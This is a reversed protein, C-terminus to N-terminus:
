EEETVQDEFEERYSTTGYKYLIDRDEPHNKWHELAKKNGLPMSLPSRNIKNRIEEEKKTPPGGHLSGIISKSYPEGNIFEIEPDNRYREMLEEETMEDVIDTDSSVDITASDQITSDGTRQQKRQKKREKEERKRDFITPSNRVSEKEARYREAAANYEDRRQQAERESIENYAKEFEKDRAKANTKEEEDTRGKPVRQWAVSAAETSKRSVDEKLGVFWPLYEAMDKITKMTAGVAAIAGNIIAVKSVLKSLSSATSNEVDEGNAEMKALKIDLARKAGLGLAAISASSKTVHKVLDGLADLGMQTVEKKSKDNRMHIIKECQDNFQRIKSPDALNKEKSIGEFVSVILTATGVFWGLAAFINKKTKKVKVKGNKDVILEFGEVKENIKDVRQQKTAMDQEKDLEESMQIIREGLKTDSMYRSIAKCVEDILRFLFLLVTKVKSKDNKGREKVKDLIEGEQYFEPSAFEQIIFDKEILACMAELVHFSSQEATENIADISRLIENEFM